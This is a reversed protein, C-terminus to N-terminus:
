GIWLGNPTTPCIQAFGSSEESRSSTKQQNLKQLERPDKRQRRRAIIGSRVGAYVAGGGRRTRRRMPDRGGERERRRERLAVQSVEIGSM